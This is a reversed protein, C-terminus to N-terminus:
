AEFADQREIEVSGTVVDELMRLHCNWSDRFFAATRSLGDVNGYLRILVAFPSPQTNGKKKEKEKTKRRM